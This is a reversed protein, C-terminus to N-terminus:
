RWGPGSPGTGSPTTACLGWAAVEVQHPTLPQLLPRWDSMPEEGARGQQEMRSTHLLSNVVGRTTVLTQQAERARPVGPHNRVVDDPVRETVTEVWVM